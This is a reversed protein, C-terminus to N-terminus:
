TLLYGLALIPIVEALAVTSRRTITQTKEGYSRFEYEFLGKCFGVELDIPLPSEYGVLAENIGRNM